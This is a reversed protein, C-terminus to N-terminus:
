GRSGSSTGAESAQEEWVIFSAVGEMSSDEKPIKDISVRNPAPVTSSQLCMQTKMAGYAHTNPMNSRLLRLSAPDVQGSSCNPLEAIPNITLKPGLLDVQAAAGYTAFEATPNVTVKPGLLHAM